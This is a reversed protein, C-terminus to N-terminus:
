NICRFGNARVAFLGWVGSFRTDKCAVAREGVPIHDPHPAAKRSLVLDKGAEVEWLKTTPLLSRKSVKVEWRGRGKM